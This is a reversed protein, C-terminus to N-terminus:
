SWRPAPPPTWRGHVMPDWHPPISDVTRQLDQVTGLEPPWPTEEQGSVLRLHAEAEPRLDEDPTRSVTTRVLNATNILHREGNPSTVLFLPRLQGTKPNIMAESLGAQIDETTVGPRLGSTDEELYRGDTMYHRITIM